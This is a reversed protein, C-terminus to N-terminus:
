NQASFVGLVMSRVNWTSCMLVAFHYTMPHKRVIFTHYAMKPHTMFIICFIREVVYWIDSFYTRNTTVLNLSAVIRLPMPFFYVLALLPSTRPFFSIRLKTRKCKFVRNSKSMQFSNTERRIVTEIPRTKPVDVKRQVRRSNPASWASKHSLWM